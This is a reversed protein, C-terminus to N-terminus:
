PSDPIESVRVDIPLWDGVGVNDIDHRLNDLNLPNEEGREKRILDTGQTALGWGSSGKATLGAVLNRLQEAEEETFQPVDEELTWPKSDESLPGSVVSLHVHTAHPTGSYPRWVFPAYGHKPYSSFLRRRHIVYKVRSDKSLRIAEAMEALLEADGGWDIARVVGGEDPRHDSNPNAFDHAKSAVTGDVPYTGRRLREIQKGLTTIATATRWPRGEWNVGAYRFAV